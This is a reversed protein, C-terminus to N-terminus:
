NSPFFSCFIRTWNIFAIKFTSDEMSETDLIANEAFILSGSIPPVKMVSSLVELLRPLYVVKYLNRKFLDPSTSVKM